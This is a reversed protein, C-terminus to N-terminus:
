FNKLVGESKLEQIIDIPIPIQDRVPSVAPYRWATIIIKKTGRKAYMAWVETPKAKTGTPGGSRTMRAPQMVAVTEPAIGKEVRKPNKIIRLVRSPSLGYQIMKRKVHNTWRYKKDDVPMKFM